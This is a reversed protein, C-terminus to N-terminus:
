RSQRENRFRELARNLTPNAFEPVTGPTATQAPTVPAAPAGYISNLQAEVEKKREEATERATMPNKARELYLAQEMERRTYEKSARHGLLKWTDTQEIPVPQGTQAELIMQERRIERLAQMDASGLDTKVGKPDAKLRQEVTWATVLNGIANKDITALVSAPAQDINHVNYNRLEKYAENQRSRDQESAEFQRELLTM